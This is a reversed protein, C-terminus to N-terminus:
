VQNHWSACRLRGQSKCKIRELLVGSEVMFECTNRGLLWWIRVRFTRIRGLLVGSESGSVGSEEWYYVQNQGQFEQSKGTTCRIRVRFNRIGGQTM